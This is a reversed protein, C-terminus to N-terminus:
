LYLVCEFGGIFVGYMRFGRYICCVNSVDQIYHLTDSQFFVIKRDCLCLAPCTVLNTLTRLYFMKM